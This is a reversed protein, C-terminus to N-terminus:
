AEWPFIYSIENNSNLKGMDIKIDKKFKVEKYEEQSFIREDKKNSIKGKIESIMKSYIEFINLYNLENFKIEIILDETKSMLIWNEKFYIISDIYELYKKLDDSALTLFAGEYPLEEMNITFKDQETIIDELFSDGTKVSWFCESKLIFDRMTIKGHLMKSLNILEVKAVLYKGEDVDTCVSAYYENNNKCIFFLPAENFEVLVKDLVLEKNNIIFFINKEM